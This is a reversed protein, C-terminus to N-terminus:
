RMFLGATLIVIHNRGLKPIDSGAFKDVRQFDISKHPAAALAAM